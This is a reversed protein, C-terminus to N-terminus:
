ITHCWIRAEYCKKLFTDIIILAKQAATVHLLIMEERYLMVQGRANQLKLLKTRVFLVISLFIFIFLNFSQTPIKKRELHVFM